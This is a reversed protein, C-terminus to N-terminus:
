GHDHPDWVTGELFGKAGIALLSVDVAVAIKWFFVELRNDFTEGLDEPVVRSALEWGVWHLLQSHGDLCNETRPVSFSCERVTVSGPDPVIKTSGDIDL